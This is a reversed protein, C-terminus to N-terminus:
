PNPLPLSSTCVRHSRGAPLDQSPFFWARLNKWEATTLQINNLTLCLLSCMSWFWCHSLLVFPPWAPHPPLVYKLYSFAKTLSLHWPFTICFCKDSFTGPGLQMIVLALGWYLFPVLFARLQPLGSLPWYPWLVPLLPGSLPSTSCSPLM